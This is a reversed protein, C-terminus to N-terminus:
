ELSEGRDLKMIMDVRDKHRGGQFETNLFVDVIAGASVGSVHHSASMLAHDILSGSELFRALVSLGVVVAMM